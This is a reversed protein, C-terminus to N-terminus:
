IKTEEIHKWRIPNVREIPSNASVWGFAKSYFAELKEGNKLEVFVTSPLNPLEESCERWKPMKSKKM